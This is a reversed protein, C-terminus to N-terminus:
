SAQSDRRFVRLALSVVVALPLLVWYRRRLFSRNFTRRWAEAVDETERYVRKKTLHVHHGLEHFLVEGLEFDRVLPIWLMSAPVHSFTADVFIEIWAPEGRWRRHYLGRVGRVPVKRGRSRTKKRRRDHNLFALNTLVVSGLGGLYKAPLVALMRRVASPLRSPPVFDKYAEVIRVEPRERM